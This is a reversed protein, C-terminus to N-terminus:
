RLQLRCDLVNLVCTCEMKEILSHLFSQGTDIQDSDADVDDAQVTVIIVAASTHSLPSAIVLRGSDPDVAFAKSFDYM